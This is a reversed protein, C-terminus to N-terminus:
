QGDPSIDMAVVNAGAVAQGNNLQSLAGTSSISYAYIFANSGVFLMTNGPNVAVATPSVSLSYPSNPVATLKATGVAFGAITNTTGNAVYVYNGGTTGPGPLSGPYVWFGACGTLLGVVGLGLAAMWSRVEVRM